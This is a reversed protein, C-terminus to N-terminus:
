NKVPHPTYTRGDKVINKGQRSDPRVLRKEDAERLRFPKLYMVTTKADFKKLWTSFEVPEKFLFKDIVVPVFQGDHHSVALAAAHYDWQPYKKGDPSIFNAKGGAALLSDGGQPRMIIEYLRLDSTSRSNVQTVVARCINRCSAYTCAACEDTAPRYSYQKASSNYRGATKDLVELNPALEDYLVVQRSLEQLSAQMYKKFFTKDQAPLTATWKAKGLALGARGQKNSSNQLTSLFAEEVFDNKPDAPDYKPLRAQRFYNALRAKIEKKHKRYFSVSNQAKFSDRMHEFADLVGFYNEDLRAPTEVRGYVAASIYMQYLYGAMASVIDSSDFWYGIREWTDPAEFVQNSVPYYRMWALRNLGPNKQAFVSGAMKNKLQTYFPSSLRQAQASVNLLGLAGLLIFFRKLTKMGYLISFLGGRFM